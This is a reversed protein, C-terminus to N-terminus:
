RCVERTLYIVYGHRLAIPERVTQCIPIRYNPRESRCWKCGSDNHSAIAPSIAVFMTVAAAAFLPTRMVNKMKM